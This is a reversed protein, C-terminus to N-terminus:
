NMIVIIGNKCILFKKKKHQFQHVYDKLSKPIKLLSSDFEFSQLCISLIQEHTTWNQLIPVELSDTLNDFYIVFAMNVTFYMVLDSKTDYCAAISKLLFNNEAEIDCNCLVIRNVLVYPFSPIKVPIDNNINCM